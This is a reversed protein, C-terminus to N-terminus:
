SVGNQGERVRVKGEQTEGATVKSELVVPNTLLCRTVLTSALGWTAIVKKDRCPEAEGIRLYHGPLGCDSWSQSVTGEGQGM